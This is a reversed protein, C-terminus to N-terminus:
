PFYVYWAGLLQRHNAQVINVIHSIDTDSFQGQSTVSIPNLWIKGVASGGAEVHIHPLESGENSYFFLRYLGVRLVTAM